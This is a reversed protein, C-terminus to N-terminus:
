QINIQKWEDKTFFCKDSYYLHLLESIENMVSDRDKASTTKSHCSGCLPVFLKPSNDCCAKKNYHVHHVSMVRNMASQPMGCMFCTYGFYARVRNRFENNFKICYPEYSIGGKWLNHNELSCNQSRYEGYCARSCFNGFKSKIDSPKKIIKKGCTKCFVDQKDVWLPSNEGSRERKNMEGLCKRSCTARKNSQSQKVYFEKRCVVCIKKVKEKYNVNGSGSRQQSQLKKLCEKSCTKQKGVLYPRVEFKDGCIVCNQVRNIDKWRSHKEKPITLQYQRHCETSCYHSTKEHSLKCFYEKGCIDCIKKAKYGRGSKILIPVEANKTPVLSQNEAHSGSIGVDTVNM